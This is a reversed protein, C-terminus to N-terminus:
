MQNLKYLNLLFSLRYFDYVITPVGYELFNDFQESAIKSIVKLTNISEKSLHKRNFNNSNFCIQYNGNDDKYDDQNSFYMVDYYYSSGSPYTVVKQIIVTFKEIVDKIKRPYGIDNLKLYAHVVIRVKSYPLTVITKFETTTGYTLFNTEVGELFGRQKIYDDDPTCDKGDYFSDEEAFRPDYSYVEEFAQILEEFQKHSFM